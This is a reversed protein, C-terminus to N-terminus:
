AVTIILGRTTAPRQVTKSVKHSCSRKEFKTAQPVNVIAGHRMVVLAPRWWMRALVPVELLSLQLARARHHAVVPDKRSDAATQLAHNVKAAHLQVNRQRTQMACPTHHGQETRPAKYWKCACWRVQRAGLRVGFRRTIIACCTFM